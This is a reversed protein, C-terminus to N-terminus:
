YSSHQRVAKPRYEFIKNWCLKLLESHLTKYIDGKLSKSGPLGTSNKVKVTVYYARHPCLLAHELISTRPLDRLRSLVGYDFGSAISMTKERIKQRSLDRKALKVEADASDLNISGIAIEEEVLRLCPVCLCCMETTERIKILEPHLHYRTGTKSLFSSMVPSLDTATKRLVGSDDM